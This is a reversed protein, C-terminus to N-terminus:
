PLRVLSDHHMAFCNRHVHRCYYVKKNNFGHCGNCFGFAERYADREMLCSGQVPVEILVTM